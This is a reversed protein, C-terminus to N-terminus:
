LSRTKNNINEVIIWPTEVTYVPPYVWFLIKKSVKDWRNPFFIMLTSNTFNFLLRNFHSNMKNSAPRGVNTKLWTCTGTSESFASESCM